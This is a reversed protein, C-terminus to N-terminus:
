HQANRPACQTCGYLQGVRVKTQAPVVRNAVGEAHTSFPLVAPDHAVRAVVLRVAFEVFAIDHGIAEVQQALDIKGVAPIHARSYTCRCPVVMGIAVVVNFTVDLVRVAAVVVIM